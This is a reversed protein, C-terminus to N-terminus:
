GGIEHVVAGSVLSGINCGVVSDGIRSKNLSNSLVTSSGTIITGGHGCYGITIDTLRSQAAGLSTNNPSGSMIPGAMSVCDPSSHCCCIGAWIDVYFRSSAAM